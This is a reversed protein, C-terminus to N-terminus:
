AGRSRIRRRAARGSAEIAALVRARVAAPARQQPASMALVAAGASLARLEAECPGCGGALHTELERREADSLTGLVHGACLELHEERHRSM